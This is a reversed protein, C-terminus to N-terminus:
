QPPGLRSHMLGKLIRVDEPTLDDALRPFEEKLRGCLEEPSSIKQGTLERLRGMLEWYRWALFHEQHSVTEIPSGAGVVGGRVRAALHEAAGRLAAVKAYIKGMDASDPDPHLAEILAPLSPEGLSGPATLPRGALAYAAILATLFYSPARGVGGPAAEGVSVVVRDRSPDAGHRECLERWEDEAFEERRAIEPTGRDVSHTIFRKGKFRGGDEVNGELWGEEADVFAMFEDLSELAQRFLGRARSPAPLQMRHGGGVGSRRGRKKPEHAERHDPEPYLVGCVGCVPSGDNELQKHLAEASGFGMEEAIREEQEDGFRRICFEVFARAKREHDTAASNMTLEGRAGTLARPPAEKRQATTPEVSPM